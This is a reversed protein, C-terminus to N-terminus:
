KYDEKLKKHFFLLIDFLTIIGVLNYNWDVVPLCDIKKKVIIEVAKFVSDEPYIVQLNRAMVEQYDCIRNQGADGYTDDYEYLKRLSYELIARETIMGVLKKDEVVPVHHVNESKMIEDVRRITDEFGVTFVEKSMISEITTKYAM